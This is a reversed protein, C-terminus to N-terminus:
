DATLAKKATRDDVSRARVKDISVLAQVVVDRGAVIKTCGQRVILYGIGLAILTLGTVQASNLEAQWIILILIVAVPLGMNMRLSAEALLRDYTNFLEVNSVQLRTSIQPIEEQLEKFTAYITYDQPTRGFGQLKMSSLSERTLEGQTKDWPQSELRFGYLYRLADRAAQGSLLFPKRRLIAIAIGRGIGGQPNIEIISGLLYAIFTTAALVATAGV